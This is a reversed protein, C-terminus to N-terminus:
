RRETAPVWDPLCELIVLGGKSTGCRRWGAAKFCYGPNTSRIRRPNVYTWLRAGPWRQWALAMAERVLDSSRVPSENRFIACNVGTQGDHRVREIRWVFLARCDVTMLAMYEGIGAFLPSRIRNGPKAANHRITSYHRLYLGRARDDGNRVPL